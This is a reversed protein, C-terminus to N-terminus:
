KNNGYKSSYCKMQQTTITKYLSYIAHYSLPGFGLAFGSQENSATYGQALKRHQLPSIIFLM